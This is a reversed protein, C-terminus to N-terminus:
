IKQNEFYINVLSAREITAYIKRVWDPDYNSLVDM